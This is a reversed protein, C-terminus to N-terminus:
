EHFERQPNRLIIHLLRYTYAAINDNCGITILINTITDNLVAYLFGSTNLKM